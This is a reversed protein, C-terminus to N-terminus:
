AMNPFSYAKLSARSRNPDVIGDKYNMAIQFKVVPLGKIRYKWRSLLIVAGKTPFDKNLEFCSLRCM